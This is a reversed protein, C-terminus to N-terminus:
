CSIGIKVVGLSGFISLPTAAAYLFGGDLASGVHKECQDTGILPLLAAIDQIGGTLTTGVNEPSGSM